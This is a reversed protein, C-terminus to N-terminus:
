NLTTEEIAFRDYLDGDDRVWITGDANIGKSFVADEEENSECGSVSIISERLLTKADDKSETAGWITTYAGKYDQLTEAVIYITKSAKKKPTYKEKVDHWADNVLDSLEDEYYNEAYIELAKGDKWIDCSYCGDEEYIKLECGITALDENAYKLLNEWDNHKNM